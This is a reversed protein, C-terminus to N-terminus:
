AKRRFVRQVFQRFQALRVKRNLRRMPGHYPSEALGERLWRRADELDGTQLRAEALKLRATVNDPTLKLSRECDTAGDALEGMAVRAVGRCLLAAAYLENNSLLVHDAGSILPNLLRVADHHMELDILLGALDIVQQANQGERELEEAVWLRAREDDGRQHAATALGLHVGPLDPDLQRAREYRDIAAAYHSNILALDGLRQQAIALTGDCELARRYKEGAEALRDTEFLMDAFDLLTDADDPDLRLQRQYHLRARETQGRQQHLIALSRNADPHAPDLQLAEHWCWAARDYEGRSLLSQALYDYAISQTELDSDYFPLGDDQSASQPESESPNSSTPEPAHQRALYFMLEADDHRDLLTYALIRHVYGLEANADLQNVRELTKIARKPQGARILDVGLHLLGPVDEGRHQLAKEFAEAAEDYRQLADLTLGLGFLWEGEDPRQDLAERLERLAQEWQGARYFRQAREAHEEADNWDSM